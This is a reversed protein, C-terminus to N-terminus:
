KTQSKNTQKSKQECQWAWGRDARGKAKGKSSRGSNDQEPMEIVKEIIVDFFFFFLLLSVFCSIGRQNQQQEVSASFHMDLHNFLKLEQCLLLAVLPIAVRFM